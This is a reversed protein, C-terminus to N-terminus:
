TTRTPHSDRGAHKMTQVELVSLFRNSLSLIEYSAYDKSFASSSSPQPVRFFLKASSQNIHTVGNAHKELNAEIEVKQEQAQARM